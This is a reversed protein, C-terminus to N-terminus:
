ANATRRREVIQQGGALVLDLHVLEGAVSSRECGDGALEGGVGFPIAPQAVVDVVDEVGGRQMRLLDDLPVRQQSVRGQRCILDVRLAPHEFRRPQGIWVPEGVQHSALGGSGRRVATQLM